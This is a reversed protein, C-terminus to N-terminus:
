TAGIIWAVRSDSVRYERCKHTIVRDHLYAFIHKRIKEKGYENKEMTFDVYGSCKQHVSIGLGLAWCAHYQQSLAHGLFPTHLFM